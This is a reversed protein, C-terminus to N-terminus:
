LLWPTSVAETKWTEAIAAFQWKNAYQEREIREFEDNLRLDDNIVKLKEVMDEMNPWHSALDALKSGDHPTAYFQFGRINQLFNVYKPNKGSKRQAQIVMEKVVLGGLSHCVFVIPCNNQQGVKAVNVMEEVLSEEVTFNDMRGTTNTKLVSSDYSLSLIRTHPFEERLWAVPWIVESGNEDREGAVWTKWYAEKCDSFPLGHIFVIEM